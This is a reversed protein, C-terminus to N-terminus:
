RRGGQLAGGMFPLQPMRPSSQPIYALASRPLGQNVHYHLAQYSAGALADCCDDSPYESKTDFMRAFGRGVIKYLVNKMEGVLLEDPYLVMDGQNVLTKLEGYADIIYGTNFPTEFANLGYKKLNSITQASQWADFTVSAVRFGRRPLERIYKEVASIDVPGAESPRWAKIIDVVVQRKVERINNTLTVVHVVCLAYNHSTTAPDLHVFYSYRPDGKRAEQLKFDVCEDIKRSDFFKAGSEGSFRAAWSGLFDLPDKHKHQKELVDKTFDKGPNIRWTPFQVALIDDNLHEITGDDRKRQEQSLCFLKWFMGEKGKPDSLIIIKGDSGFQQTSPNLANYVEDGSNRGSSNLFHAFEDFLIVISAKGRISASNSHGSILQVSGEIPLDIGKNKRAEIEKKDAETLLRIEGKRASPGIKDMFYSSRAIRSEIEIFLPDYAQDQSTAVNVIAIPKDPPMDYYKQPNGEPCELLKYAEYAAIISVLFTKSSRRGMVLLLTKFPAFRRYKDIIQLFGGKDQDYDLDEERGIKKLVEIEDETLEAHENGPTGRYFMKLLIKQLPWLRIPPSQGDFNLYDKHECFTIVDVVRREKAGGMEVLAEDILSLDVGSNM